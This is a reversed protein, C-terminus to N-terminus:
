RAAKGKPLHKPLLVRGVLEIGHQDLQRRTKDLDNIAVNDSAVWFWRTVSRGDRLHARLRTAAAQKKAIVVSVENTHASHPEVGILERSPMHGLVYDWRNENPYDARLEADLDLSDGFDQRVDRHVISAKQLAALGNKVSPLLSSGPRLAARIPTRPRKGRASAM